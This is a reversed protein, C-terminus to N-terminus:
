KNIFQPWVPTVAGMLMPYQGWQSVTGWGRQWRSEQQCLPRAHSQLTTVLGLVGGSKDPLEGLVESPVSGTRSCSGGCEQFLVGSGWLPESHRPASALIKGASSAEAVAGSEAEGM